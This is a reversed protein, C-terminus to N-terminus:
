VLMQMEVLQKYKGGLQLLSDHTGSEVIRGQELVIIKDAHRVTALRHAIVISTRDKMLVDIADQVVRESVTDLSSTAEDLILIPPNKYLARAITIRQKEGGSLKVGRDGVNEHYQHEKQSIFTSANAAKSVNMAKDENPEEDGLAINELISENFLIPEQSVIGMLKRLSALEIQKINIGDMCIEGETVDHFRPILDVLTSKGAGSAGVIAVTDGKQITFNINQLIQKQGFSFSVNKFEISHQFDQKVIANASNVITNPTNLIEQIRTLAAQGQHLNFFLQSLSKLPNILFYFLSIFMIFLSPEIEPPQHLALKGGFWIIVSLVTIGLFESMPSALERRAAIQNNLKRIHDNLRNFFESRKNEAGFAKIIRLGGITEEVVSLVDGLKEQNLKTTRKLSKSVRGIMLGAIPLLVMLFIFLNPSIYLLIFFYFLVTVPASFLLEMLAIVSLEVANVDNTIRSLLDGKREESFYGIPLNLLKDYTKQRIACVIDNRLPHLIYKAIYLFLNKFLNAVIVVACIFLLGYVKDHNHSAIFESLSYKFYNMMGDKTFSFTPRATIMEEQGFLMKLFPGIM